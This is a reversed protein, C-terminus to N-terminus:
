AFDNSYGQSYTSDNYGYDKDYAILGMIGEVCHSVCDIFHRKLTLIWEYKFASSSSVVVRMLM